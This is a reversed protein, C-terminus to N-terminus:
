LTVGEAINLCRPLGFPFMSCKNGSCTNRPCDKALVKDNVGVYLAHSLEDMSLMTSKIDHKQSGNMVGWVIGNKGRPAYWWPCIGNFDDPSLDCIRYSDTIGRAKLELVKIIRATDALDLYEDSPGLDDQPRHVWQNLLIQTNGSSQRQIIINHQGGAKSRSYGAVGDVDTEIMAVSICMRGIIFSKCKVKDQYEAPVTADYWRKYDVMGDVIRGVLTKEGPDGLKKRLHGMISPLSFMELLRVRDQIEQPAGLDRLDQSVTFPGETDHMDVYDVLARFYPHFEVGGRRAVLRTTSCDVDSTGHHDIVYLDLEPDHLKELTLHQRGFDLAIAGAQKMQALTMPLKGHFEVKAERIGPFAHLCEEQRAIALSALADLDTNQHLLVIKITPYERITRTPESNAV